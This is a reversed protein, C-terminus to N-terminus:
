FSYFHVVWRGAPQVRYQVTSFQVFKM